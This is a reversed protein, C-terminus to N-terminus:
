NKIYIAGNKKYTWFLLALISNDPTKVRFKKSCIRYISIDYHYIDINIMFHTFSYNGVKMELWKQLLAM